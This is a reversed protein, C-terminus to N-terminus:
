QKGWEPDYAPCDGNCKEFDPQSAIERAKIIFSDNGDKALSMLVQRLEEVTQVQEHKKIEKYVYDVIWRCRVQLFALLCSASQFHGLQLFNDLSTVVYDDTKQYYGHYCYTIYYDLLGQVQDYSLTSLYDKWVFDMGVSEKQLALATLPGCAAECAFQSSAVLTADFEGSMTKLHCVCFTQVLLSCVMIRM